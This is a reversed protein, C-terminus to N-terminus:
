NREAFAEHYVEKFIRSAVLRNGTYNIHVYDMFVADYTNDFVNTINFAKVYSSSKLKNLVENVFYDYYLEMPSVYKRRKSILAEIFTKHKKNHIIPQFFTYCRVGKDRCLREYKKHKAIYDNVAMDLYMKEEPVMKNVGVFMGALSQLLQITRYRKFRNMFTHSNIANNRRDVLMNNLACNFENSGNYLIVFNPQIIDIYEALAIVQTDISGANLALNFGVINESNDNIRKQLLMTVTNGDSVNYGWGTSGGLFCFRNENLKQVFPPSRFGQKNTNVYKSNYKKDEGVRSRIFAQSEFIDIAHEDDVHNKISYKTFLTMAFEVSIFGYVPILLTVYLLIISKLEIGLFKRYRLHALLIFLFALMIITVDVIYIYTISSSNISGGFRLM